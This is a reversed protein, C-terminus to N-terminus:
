EDSPEGEPWLEEVPVRLAKAIRARMAPFPRLYGREVLSVWSGSRGVRRALEVQSIGALIRVRKMPNM